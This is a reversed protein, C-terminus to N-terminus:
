KMTDKKIKTIILGNKTKTVTFNVMDGVKLDKLLNKDILNYPMTMADMFGDSFKEAVIVVSIGENDISKIVGMTSHNEVKQQGCAALLIALGFISLALIRKM